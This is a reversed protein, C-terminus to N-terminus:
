GRQPISGIGGCRVVPITSQQKMEFATDGDAMGLPPDAASGQRRFHQALPIRDDVGGAGTGAAM